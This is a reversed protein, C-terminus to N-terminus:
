SVLYYSFESYSLNQKIVAESNRFDSLKSHILSWEWLDSYNLKWELLDWQLEIKM